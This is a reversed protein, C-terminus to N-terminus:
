VNNTNFSWRDFYRLFIKAINRADDIGRHHTGELSMGELQLANKMGIARKLKRISGHQQKLNIHPRLWITDMSFLQCDAEFQKKDYFGWSCLIYEESGYGIWDKFEEAVINFYPAHDVDEQRISTLSKCFDSLVPQRLPKIFKGLEAIIQRQDNIKVAGIEIIESQRVDAGEWCTAELDFVIYNM